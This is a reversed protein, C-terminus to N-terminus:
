CTMVLSWVSDAAGVASSAPVRVLILTLIALPGSDSPARFRCNQSGPPGSPRPDSNRSKENMPKCHWAQCSIPAVIVNLHDRQCQRLCNTPARGAPTWVM